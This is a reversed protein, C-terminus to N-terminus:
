KQQAHGHTIQQQTKSSQPVQISADPIKVNPQKKNQIRYKLLINPTAYFIAM